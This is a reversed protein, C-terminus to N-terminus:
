LSSVEICVAAITPIREWGQIAPKYIEDIPVIERDELKQETEIEGFLKKFETMTEIRGDSVQM